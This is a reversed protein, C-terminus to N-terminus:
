KGSETTSLIKDITKVILEFSGKQNKSIVQFNSPLKFDSEKEEHLVIVNIGSEQFKPNQVFYDLVERGSYKPLTTDVIVIDPSTIYVFGLGEVGNDTSFINLDISFKNSLRTLFIKIVQRIAFNDDILVIKKTM